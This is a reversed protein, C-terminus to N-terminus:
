QLLQINQNLLEIVNDLITAISEKQNEKLEKDTLANTISLSKVEQELAQQNDLLAQIKKEKSQNEKELHAITKVAQQYQQILLSLQADLENIKQLSDINSM